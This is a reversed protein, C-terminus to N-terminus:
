PLIAFRMPAAERAANVNHDIEGTAVGSHRRELRQVPLAPDQGASCRRSQDSPPNANM